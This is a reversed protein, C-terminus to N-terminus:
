LSDELKPRAIGNSFLDPREIALFHFATIVLAHSIEGSRILDNIRSLSVEVSNLRETGTDDFVPQEVQSIGEALFTYCLNDQLAPNPHNKGLYTWHRAIYGTEERLERIAGSLPDPDGPDICGGPIELTVGEVGHRYQEVLLVSGLDNIAIVNVWPSCSLTYFRSQKRAEDRSEALVSSM